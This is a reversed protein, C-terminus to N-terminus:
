KRQKGLVMITFTQKVMGVASTAKITYNGTQRVPTNNITMIHHDDHKETIASECTMIDQGEFTWTVEPAPHGTVFAVVSVQDGALVAYQLGRKLQIKPKETLM